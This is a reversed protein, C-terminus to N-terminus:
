WASFTMSITICTHIPSSNVRFPSLWRGSKQAPCRAAILRKAPVVREASTSFAQVMYEILTSAPLGLWSSIAHVFLLAFFCTCRRAQSFLTKNAANSNVPPSRLFDNM